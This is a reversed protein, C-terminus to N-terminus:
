QQRRFSLWHQPGRPSSHEGFTVPYSPTRALLLHYKDGPETFTCFHFSRWHNYPVLALRHLLWANFSAIAMGKWGQNLRLWGISVNGSYCHVAQDDLLVAEM